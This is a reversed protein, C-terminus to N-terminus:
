LTGLKNHVSAGVCTVVTVTVFVAEGIVMVSAAFIRPVELELVDEFCMEEVAVLVVVAARAL